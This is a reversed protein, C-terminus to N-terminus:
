NAKFNITIQTQIEVPERDLYYPKYRWQRVADLAARALVPDGSIVKPNTVVGEKNIIAEILVLGQAHVALAAPPYKPQVRKILLGQSVGQSIKLTALSPRAPSAGASAILGTLSGSTSADAIPSPPPASEDSQTQPKSGASRVIIPEATPNKTEPEPNANAAPANRVTPATVAGAAPTGPLAPSATKPGPTPASSSRNTTKAEAAPQPSSIPAPAPAPQGSAQPAALGPAPTSPASKAFEMYGFYGLVALAVVILAAILLTKRGGAESSDKAGL